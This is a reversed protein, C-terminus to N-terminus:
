VCKGNSFYFGVSCVCIGLGNGYSNAGCSSSTVSVGVTTSNNSGTSNNAANTKTNDPVIVPPSQIVIAVCEGKSYTYGVECACKNGIFYAHAPCIPAFVVSPAPKATTQSAAGSSSSTTASSSGQSNTAAPKAPQAPQTQQAPQTPQTTSSTSSSQSTQSSQSTSQSISSQGSSSGAATTSPLQATVTTSTTITTTTTTGVVCKGGTLIFGLKSSCTRCAVGGDKYTHSFTGVPCGLVCNDGSAVLGNGCGSCIKGPLVGVTVYVLSFDVLASASITLVYDNDITSSFDLSQSNGLSVLNLGYLSYSNRFLSNSIDSSVSGSYKTQSVQGGYSGFSASSPSFALWSIWIRRIATSAGVTLKVTLKTGQLNTPSISLQVSNSSVDFGNIFVRIVPNDSQGFPTNINTYALACNCSGITQINDVYSIM